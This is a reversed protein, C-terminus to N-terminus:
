KNVGLARYLQVRSMHQSLNIQVLDMRAKLANQQAFLVELYNARGARYLERSTEVAQNMKDSQTRRLVAAKKLNEMRNLENVIETFGNLIAKHYEELTILQNATATHFNAKL